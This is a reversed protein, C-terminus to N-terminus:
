LIGGVEYVYDTSQWSLSILSSTYISLAGAFGVGNVTQWDKIIAAPQSWYSTNWPSTNWPSTNSVAIVSYSSDPNRNEFDVNMVISALVQGTLDFIPRAMTFYKQRGKFGFYSFAPKGFAQIPNGDDNMGTDCEYVQHTSGSSAGYYLKDNFLEFCNANWASSKSRKGFTCWSQTITNMVYQYQRSNESQPVNVLLKNGIPNLIVQWGFNSNYAQVDATILNVIKDSLAIKTQSRNTTLSRSLPVAGDATLLVVDSAVNCYFRRGIPRGIRFQGVLAWTSASSPDYGRYVVADGESSVFVAYDDVGASNAFTWTIMGMLYGGLKFLPGLDFSTAAGAISNVPLYWIRTSSKETFWLRNKFSNVHILTSTTVGTIAPTSVGTISTWSTGNYLQASDAGNVAYLFHGGATGFNIHQFRANTLGTVDPTVTGGATIDCIGEEDVSFLKQTSTGNYAMLSEVNTGTTKAFGESGKRLDISTPSPFWNDLILADTAPMNAISDRANLGGIPAPISTTQPAPKKMARSMM